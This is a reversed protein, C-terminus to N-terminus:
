MDSREWNLQSLRTTIQCQSDRYLQLNSYEDINVVTGPRPLLESGSELNWLTATLLISDIDQRNAEYPDRFVRLMKELPEPVRADVFHMWILQWQGYTHDSTWILKMRIRIRTTQNKGQLHTKLGEVTAVVIPGHEEVAAKASLIEQM